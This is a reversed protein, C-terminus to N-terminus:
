VGTNQATAIPKNRWYHTIIGVLFFVLTHNYRQSLVVKIVLFAILTSAVAAAMGGFNDDKKSHVYYKSAKISGIIFLAIFALGGVLGTELLISLIYTDITLVGAPDRWNLTQAGMALGYGFIPRESILPIGKSWMDFRANTSASHGSGGLIKNSLTTSSTILIIFTILSVPYLTLLAPGLLSRSNLHMNRLSIIFSYNAISVIAGILGLRSGSAFIGYFIVFITIIMFLKLVIEKKELLYYVCMPLVLALLEAYELPTLSSGRVRYAGFRFTPRLVVQMDVSDIFISRPIHYSWITQSLSTEYFAVLGLILASAICVKFVIALSKENSILTAALFFMLFNFLLEKIFHTASVMINNSFFISMFSAFLLVMVCIFISRNETYNKRLTQKTSKSVSIMILFMILLTYILIRQPSIWPGGPLKILSLYSPWVMWFGFFFYIVTRTKEELYTNKEPMTWIGILALLLIPLLMFKISSMPLLPLYLGFVGGLFVALFAIFLYLGIKSNRGSLASYKGLPKKM